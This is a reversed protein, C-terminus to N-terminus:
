EHMGGNSDSNIRRKSCYEQWAVKLKSMKKSLARYMKFFFLYQKYVYRSCFLYYVILGVLLALFVYLRVEGRNIFFLTIYVALMALVCFLFDAVFFSRPSINFVKGWARLLDFFVGIMFGLFCICLFVLLQQEVAPELM